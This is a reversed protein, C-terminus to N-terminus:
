KFIYVGSVFGIAGGIGLKKSWDIVIGIVTPDYEKKITEFCLYKEKGSNDAFCYISKYNVYEQDVRDLKQKEIVIKANQINELQKVL